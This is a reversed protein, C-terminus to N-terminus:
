VPVFFFGNIFTPNISLAQGGPFRHGESMPAPSVCVCVCVPACVCYLEHQMQEGSGGVGWEMEAGVGHQVMHGAHSAGRVVSHGHGFVPGVELVQADGSNRGTERPDSCNNRHKM